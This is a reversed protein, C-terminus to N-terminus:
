QQPETFYTPFTMPQRPYSTTCVEPVYDTISESPATPQIGGGPYDGYDPMDQVTLIVDSNDRFMPTEEAAEEIDKESNEDTGVAAVTANRFIRIRNACFRRFICRLIALALALTVGLNVFFTWLEFASSVHGGFLFAMYARGLLEEKSEIVNEEMTRHKTTSIGMAKLVQHQRSLTSLLDNLMSHDSFEPWNLRHARSFITEHFDSPNAGLHIDPITLNHILTAKEITGDTKYQHVEGHLRLFVAERTRCQVQISHTHVVNTSPDLYGTRTEGGLTVNLPLYETCNEQPMPLFTYMSSNLQTCPFVQLFGPGARATVNPNELLYRATLTPHQSMLLAVIKLTNAINNCTYAYNDWFQKRQTQVIETALSQMMANIVAIDNVFPNTTSIMTYQKTVKSDVTINSEASIVRIMLGQDSMSTMNGNCDRVSGMGYKSFTLALNYDDSVFHHEFYSGNVVFDPEYQCSVNENKEWVLMTKDSLHCSQADYKCHSVDGAPTEFFDTGHRKYVTTEIVSCQEVSFDHSKCCWEYSADVKNKTVYVGHDGELTGAPCKHTAVMLECEQQTMPLMESSEKKTKIDTFFSISTTLTTRYKSCQYAKSSLKVLNQKYVMFSTKIPMNTANKAPPEDCHFTPNFRFLHPADASHSGCVVPAEPHVAQASAILGLMCLLSLQAYAVPTVGSTAKKRQTKRKSSSVSVANVTEPATQADDTNTLMYEVFQSDSMEETKVKPSEAEVANVGRKLQFCRSYLHGARKCYTCYPKNDETAKLNEGKPNPQAPAGTRPKNNPAKNNNAKFPTKNKAKYTQGNNTSRGAQTKVLETLANLQKTLAKVQDTTDEKVVNVQHSQSAVVIKQAKGVTDKYEAQKAIDLAMKLTIDKRDYIKDQYKDRLGNIFADRLIENKHAASMSPYASKGATVVEDYFAGVSKKGQSLTWLSRGKMPKHRLFAKTLEEKLSPYHSIAPSAEKVLGIYTQYASGKLSKPLCQALQLENLGFTMMNIEWKEIFGEWSETPEDAFTDQTDFNPLIVPGIGGNHSSSSATLPLATMTTHSLASQAGNPDGAPVHNLVPPTPNLTGASHPPVPSPEPLGNPMGGAAEVANPLGPPPPITAPAAAPMGPHIRYQELILNKLDAPISDWVDFAQQERQTSTPQAEPINVSPTQGNPIAGVSAQQLAPMRQQAIQNQPQPPGQQQPPRQMQSQQQPHNQMQNQQQIPNQMRNNQQPPPYQAQPRVQPVTANPLTSAPQPNGQAQDQPSVGTLQMDVVSQPMEVITHPNYNPPPPRQPRHNAPQTQPRPQQNVPTQQSTMDDLLGRAASYPTSARIPAPTSFIGAGASATTTTNTTLNAVTSVPQYNAGGRTRGPAVSRYWSPNFINM